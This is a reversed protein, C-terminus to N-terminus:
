GGGYRVWQQPRDNKKAPTGSIAGEDPSVSHVRIKDLSARPVVPAALSPATVREASPPHSSLGAPARSESPLHGKSEKDVKGADPGARGPIFVPPTSQPPAEGRREARERAQSIWESLYWASKYGASQESVKGDIVMTQWPLTTIGLPEIWPKGDLDDVNSYYVPFKAQYLSVVEAYQRQCTDANPGELRGFVLLAVPEDVPVVVPNAALM